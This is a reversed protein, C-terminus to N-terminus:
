QLEQQTVEVQRTVDLRGTKSGKASSLSLFCVAGGHVALDELSVSAHTPQPCSSGGLPGEIVALSREFRIGFRFDGHSNLPSFIFTWAFHHPAGGEAVCLGCESRKEANLIKISFVRSRSM